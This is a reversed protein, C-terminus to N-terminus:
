CGLFEELQETYYDYFEIFVDEVEEKFVYSEGSKTLLDEKTKYQPYETKGVFKEIVRKDALFSALECLNISEM